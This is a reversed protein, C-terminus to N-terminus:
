NRIHSAYKLERDSRSRQKTILKEVIQMSKALNKYINCSVHEYGRFGIDLLAADLM